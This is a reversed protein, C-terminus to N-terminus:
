IAPEEVTFVVNAALPSVKGSETVARVSLKYEGATRATYVFHWYVWREASADTKYSTWTEGGDLSFEVATIADGCDDAYGEFAIDDGVHFVDETYNMFAVEARLSEERQKVEPVTEEAALELDVVDRVFYQAVTGPVWLQTGSPIDKENIRYVVMAQKELAYSLPLSMQYGDSGTVRLTNVGDEMEALSLVSELKVGVINANATAAGTACSCLTIQSSEEGEMEKLNVTYAHRIQGGVNIYYNAKNSELAYAPKACLGTVVTGFLNFVDDAPTVTEQDFVFAGQVDAIKDYEKEEAEVVGNEYSLEQAEAPTDEKQATQVPPAELVSPGAQAACGNLLMVAGATGSMLKKIKKKM